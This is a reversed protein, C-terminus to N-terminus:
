LVGMLMCPKMKFKQAIFGRTLSGNANWLMSNVPAAWRAVAMWRLMLQLEWNNVNSPYETFHVGRGLSL